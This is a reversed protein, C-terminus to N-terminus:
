DAKSFKQAPTTIAFFILLVTTFLRKTMKIKM